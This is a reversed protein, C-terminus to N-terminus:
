FGSSIYLLDGRLAGLDRPLLLLPPWCKENLAPDMADGSLFEGKTEM